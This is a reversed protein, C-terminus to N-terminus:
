KEVGDIPIKVTFTSGRGEASKFSIKAGLSEAIRQSIYLGLGSGTTDLRRVNHARFFKEFVRKQESKPIGIGHDQVAIEVHRKKKTLHVEVARGSNAYKLANTFLNQIIIRLLTFDTCVTVKRRPLIFQCHVKAEKALIKLEELMEGLSKVMDICQKQPNLGGGELRAVRLLADLLHVMRYTAHLIEKVYSREETTLNKVEDGALLELYWRATSLPTRLQHSALSIFESKM